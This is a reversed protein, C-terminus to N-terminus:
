VPVSFETRIQYSAIGSASHRSSSLFDNVSTHLVPTEQATFIRDKYEHLKMAETRVHHGVVEGAVNM